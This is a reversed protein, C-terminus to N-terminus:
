QIGNLMKRYFIEKRMEKTIEENPKKKKTEGDRKFMSCHYVIKGACFSSTKKKQCNKSAKAEM